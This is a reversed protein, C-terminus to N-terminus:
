NTKVAVILIQLNMLEYQVVARLEELGLPMILAKFSEPDAFNIASRLAKDFENIACKVEVESAPGDEIFNIYHEGGNVYSSINMPDTYNIKAERGLLKAQKQYVEELVLTQEIANVM